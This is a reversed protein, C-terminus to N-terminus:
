GIRVASAGAESCGAGQCGAGLGFASGVTTDGAAGAEVAAAVEPVTTNRIWGQPSIRISLLGVPTDGGSTCIDSDAAASYPHWDGGVVGLM